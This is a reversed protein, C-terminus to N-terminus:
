NSIKTQIIKEPDYSKGNKRISFYLQSRKSQKNKTMYAIVQGKKVKDGISVLPDTYGYATFFGNYHKIIIVNGYGNVNDNYVVDGSSSAKVVSGIEGGINVGEIKGANTQHGFKSLIIGRAPWIFTTSDIRNTLAVTSINNVNTAKNLNTNVTKENTSTTEISQSSNPILLKQGIFVNNNKLGNADLLQQQKINYKIAIRYINEGEKVIHFLQKPVTTNNADSAPRNIKENNTEVNKQQSTKSIQSNSLEVADSYASHAIITFATTFCLCSILSM